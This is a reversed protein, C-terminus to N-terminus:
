TWKLRQANKVDSVLIARYLLGASDVFLVTDTMMGNMSTIHATEALVCFCQMLFIIRFHYFFCCQSFGTLAATNSISHLFAISLTWNSLLKSLCLHFHVLKSKFINLTKQSKKGICKKLFDLKTEVKTRSSFFIQTLPFELIM